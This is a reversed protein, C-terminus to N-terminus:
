VNASQEEETKPQQEPTEQPLKTPSQPTTCAVLWQAVALLCLITIINRKM